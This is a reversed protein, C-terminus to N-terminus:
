NSTLLAQANLTGATSTTSEKASLRIYDAALTVDFSFGIATGSAATNSNGPVVFPSGNTTSTGSTNVLVDTSEPTLTVYPVYTVGKDISREILLYLRSGYSKPLYTGAISINPLGEALLITSSAGAYATTLTAPSASSGIATAYNISEFPGGHGLAQESKPTLFFWGVFLIIAIAVGGILLKVNKNPM